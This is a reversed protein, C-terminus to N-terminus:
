SRSLVARGEVQLHVHPLSQLAARPIQQDNVRLASEQCVAAHEPKIDAPLLGIPAIFLSPSRHDLSRQKEFLHQFGVNRTDTNFIWYHVTVGKGDNSLSVSLSELRPLESIIGALAGANPKFPQRWESRRIDKAFLPVCILSWATLVFEAWRRGPVDVPRSRIGARRFRHGFL